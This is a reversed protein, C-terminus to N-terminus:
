MREGCVAAHLESGLRLLDLDSGAPGILTAGMAVGSPLFGAPVALAALELLNAGRSYHGLRVNLRFPDAELAALTYAAPATPVLILDVREFITDMERRLEHVRYLSDFADAASFKRASEIMARTVPLMAGPKSELFPRLSALREAIWPGDIMFKGAERMPAFSVESCRWGLAPLRAIVSQYVSAAERDGFFEREGDALVGVRPPTAAAVSRVPVQRSFPDRSDFGRIVELVRKADECNQSFVSVTDLTRCAPVVGLSSVSGVSPKLGVLNNYGAPIRGSGGTDTGLAFSVHASAVAVASGSSSGGAAYEANFVSACAGYPSRTGSLGTAFQDLNTKGLCIAGAADLADVVAASRRPQYSYEPCAATTPMTAVDINDKVAYPVGYLPLMEGAALRSDISDACRLLDAEPRLHIWACRDADDVIRQHLEQM